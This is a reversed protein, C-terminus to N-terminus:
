SPFRMRFRSRMHIDLQEFPYWQAYNTNWINQHINWSVGRSMDPASTRPTVFPTAAGLCIVPVDLSTLEFGERGGARTTDMYTASEVGRLHPSGGYVSELYTSMPDPRAVLKGIVDLPDM